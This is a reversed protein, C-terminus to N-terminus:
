RLEFLRPNQQRECLLRRLRGVLLNMGRSPRDMPDGHSPLLTEPGRERLDLLSAVSAAVGEAGNYSWQTSALSWVKGPAYILDGTFAVKRGDVTALLSISGTTHGPTPLVMVDTGAFELTAYDRL